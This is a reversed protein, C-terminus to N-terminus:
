QKGAEAQNKIDVFKTIGMDVLHDIGCQTR